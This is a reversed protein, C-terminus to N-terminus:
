EVVEVRERRGRERAEDSWEVLLTTSNEWGSSACFAMRSSLSWVRSPRGRKM